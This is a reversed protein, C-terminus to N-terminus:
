RIKYFREGYRYGNMLGIIKARLYVPVFLSYTYIRQSRFRKISEIKKKFTESIDVYIRPHTEHVVNWVEFAFLSIGKFEDLVGIVLNGVDKHDQHPDFISHTFIKVPKYKRILNKVKNKIDYKKIDKELDMDRLGLFITEKCGIFKGIEKAEKVREKILVEKKLLPNSLEGYSFVVSIVEKGEKAYKAITGGMGIELDDSHSCFVLIVEKM